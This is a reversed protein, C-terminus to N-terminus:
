SGSNSQDKNGSLQTGEKVINVDHGHRFINFIYSKSFM